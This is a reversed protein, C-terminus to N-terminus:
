RVSSGDAPPRGDGLHQGLFRKLLEQYEPHIDLGGANHGGRMEFFVKPEKAAEFLKRGQEFPILEDQTSHAILVPCKVNRVNDLTNYNYRCLLRSPLYPYVKAAMDATSTFGSELVLAKADVERALWSAVACGLSRGFVVIRNEPVGRKELLYKWAALSDKYTGEETPKGSSRGYGRYDFILVNLGLKHFTLISNVRDGIDGANGHCDLLTIGKDPNSGAPIYWAAITEGDDTKLMLDEFQLGADAPTMDITKGPFYLFKSQAFFLLLCLGIYALAAVRLVMWFVDM